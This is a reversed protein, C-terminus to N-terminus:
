DAGPGGELAELVGASAFDADLIMREVEGREASTVETGYAAAIVLPEGGVEVIWLQYTWGPFVDYRAAQPTTVPAWRDYEPYSCAPPGLREPVEFSIRKGRYADLLLPVAGRPNTSQQDTLAAVLADIDRPVPMPGERCPDPSVAGIALFEIRRLHPDLDTGKTFALRHQSWGAPVSLVALPARDRAGVFPVAYRGADLPAPDTSTGRGSDLVRVVDDGSSVPPVSSRDTDLSTVLVVAGVVAAAVGSAVALTRWRRRRAARDLLRALDGEIDLPAETALAPLRQRLRDDISM